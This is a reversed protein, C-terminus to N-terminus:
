RRREDEGEVPYRVETLELGCAPALGPPLPQATLVAASVAERSLRGQGVQVLAWVTRRVQHYLFANGRIEFVWGDGEPQWAAATVCRITSGGAKHPAGFAAFDHTGRLLGAAANMAAADPEPWVRWAYRERLPARLPGACLRYRYRRELADFRPHFEATVEEAARAAVDEPLHANLAALLDELSHNWVLDFAIVQGSAHVGSDTRGASLLAREQWGLRRLADEVTSQVTRAAGQRQFGLFHTGDYALIVKYHAM